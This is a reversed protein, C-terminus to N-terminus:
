MSRIAIRFGLVDKTHKPLHVRDIMKFIDNLSYKFSNGRIRKDSCWEHINGYLDFIGLNGSQKKAVHQIKKDKTNNKHWIYDSLYEEALKDKKSIYDWEESSLLSYEKNTKDNLWEIYKNACDWSVNVVPLNNRKSKYEYNKAYCQTASDNFCFDYEEFTVPCVAVYIKLEEIYVTKPELYSGKNILYSEKNDNRKVKVKNDSLTFHKKINISIEDFQTKLNFRSCDLINPISTNFDNDDIVVPIYKSINKGNYIESFIIKSEWQVGKGETPEVNNEFRNFYIPTFVLIVYDAKEIEKKMWQTWGANPTLAIDSDIISDINTQKLDDSFKKILNKHEESDWSYSIFVKPKKQISM